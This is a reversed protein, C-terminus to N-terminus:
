DISESNFRQTVYSTSILTLLLVEKLTTDPHWPWPFPYIDSHYLLRFLANYTFSSFPLTTRPTTLRCLLDVLWTLCGRWACPTNAVVAEEYPMMIRCLIDPTLMLGADTMDHPPCPTLCVPGTRAVLKIIYDPSLLFIIV